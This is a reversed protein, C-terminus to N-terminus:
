VLSDLVSRMAAPDIMGATASLIQGEASVVITTPLSRAAFASSADLDEDYYTPLDQYGNQQLWEKAMSATERNGDTQDIFAFSVREGYENYLQQYDPMEKICYPCWTAWFNIVLPKGGAISTLTIQEGADTYVTADYDELLPTETPESAESSTSADDVQTADTAASRASLVNYGVLGLALVLVLDAATVLMARKKADVRREGM